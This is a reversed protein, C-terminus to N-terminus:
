EGGPNGVLGAIGGAVYAYILAMCFVAVSRHGYGHKRCAGVEMSTCEPRSLAMLNMM